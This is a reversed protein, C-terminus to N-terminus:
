TKQLDEKGEIIDEIIAYEAAESPVEERSRMIIAGAISLLIAGGLLLPWREGVGPPGSKAPTREWLLESGSNEAIPTVRPTAELEEGETM